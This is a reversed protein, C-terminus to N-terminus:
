FFRPGRNRQSAAGAGAAAGGTAGGMAEVVVEDGEHLGGGDKVETFEDDSIGPKFRVAAVKQGRVEYAKAWRGGANGGGAGPGAGGPPGRHGGMGAGGPAGGAGDPKSDVRAEILEAGPRFRLASNSVRLVGDHRQSVARVSATMGPRLRGDKNDVRLV